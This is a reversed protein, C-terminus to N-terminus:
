FRESPILEPISAVVRVKFRHEIERPDRLRKDAWGLLFLYVLGVGLAVGGGLAGKKEGSGDGIPWGRTIQPPDIVRFGQAVSASVVYNDRDMQSQLANVRTDKAQVDAALLALEPDSISNVSASPSFLTGPHTTLYRRLADQAQSQDQKAQTLQAKLYTVGNQANQKEMSGEEDRLVTIAKDVVTVCVSPQNCSGSIGMLRSGIPFIVLKDGTIAKYRAAGDPISDGLAIYLDHSFQGTSMLQGLSDSENQAPTLYQSWGVPMTGFYSPDDVWLQSIAKYSPNLLLTVLGVAAPLMLLLFVFRVKYRFLIEIYRAM